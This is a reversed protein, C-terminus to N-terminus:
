GIGGHRVAVGTVGFSGFLPAAPLGSSGGLTNDGCCSVVIKIQGNQSM